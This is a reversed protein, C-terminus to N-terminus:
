LALRALPDATPLGLASRAAAIPGALSTLGDTRPQYGDPVLAASGICQGVRIRYQAVLENGFFGALGAAAVWGLHNISTPQLLKQLSEWLAVAASGVIM